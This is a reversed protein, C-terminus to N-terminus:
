RSTRTSSGAGAVGILLLALLAFAAVNMTPVAVADNAAAAVVITVIQNANPLVGNSATVTFTFLGLTTPTGSLLGASSLTLGPPLSGSTVSFTIPANGTATFTYNFSAGGTAAPPLTTSTFV